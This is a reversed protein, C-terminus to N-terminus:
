GTHQLAGRAVDLFAPIEAIPFSLCASEGNNEGILRLHLARGEHHIGAQIPPAEAIMVTQGSRGRLAEYYMARVEEILRDLQDPPLVLSRGDWRLSLVRDEDVGVLDLKLYQKGLQLEGIRTSPPPEPSPLPEEEPEEPPLAPQETARLATLFSAAPLPEPQGLVRLGHRLGEILEGLYARDFTIADGARPSTWVRIEVAEPRTTTGVRGYVACDPRDCLLMPQVHPQIAQLAYLEELGTVVRAVVDVPLTIGRPLLYGEVIVRLQGEQPIVAGPYESSEGFRVIPGIVRPPPPPAATEAEDPTSEPEPELDELNLAEIQEREEDSLWGVLLSWSRALARGLRPLYVAPLSLRHEYGPSAGAAAPPRQDIRLTEDAIVLRLASGNACSLEESLDARGLASRLCSLLADVDPPALTIAVPEPVWISDERHWQRLSLQHRGDTEEVSLTIRVGRPHLAVRHSEVTLWDAGPLPWPQERAPEPESSPPAPEEAPEEGLWPQYRVLSGQLPSLRDAFLAMGDGDPRWSSRARQWFGLHAMYRTGFPETEARLRRGDGTDLVIRAVQRGGGSAELLETIGRRLSDLDAQDLMLADRTPAFGSPGRRWVRLDLHRVGGQTVPQVRIESDDDQGIVLGGPAGTAADM